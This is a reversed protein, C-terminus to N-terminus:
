ISTILKTFDRNKQGENFGNDSRWVITDSMVLKLLHEDSNYRKESCLEGLGFKGAIRKLAYYACADDGGAMSPCALIPLRVKKQGWEVQTYVIMQKLWDTYQNYGNLDLRKCEVGFTFNHREKHRIILDIRRHEGTRPNFGKVEQWIDWEPLLLEKYFEVAEPEM